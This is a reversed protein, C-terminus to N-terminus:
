NELKGEIRSLRTSIDKLSENIDKMTDKRDDQMDRLASANAVGQLQITALWFIGGALVIVLGLPMLTSESIVKLRKAIPM